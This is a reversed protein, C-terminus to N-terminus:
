IRLKEAQEIAISYVSMKLLKDKYRACVTVPNSKDADSYRACIGASLKFEDNSATASLLASPGPVGEIKLLIEDPLVDAELLENETRNRGM